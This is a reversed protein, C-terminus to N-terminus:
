SQGGPTAPQDGVACLDLAAALLGVDDYLLRTAAKGSGIGKGPEALAAAIIGRPTEAGRVHDRHFAYHEIDRSYGEVRPACNRACRRLDEAAAAVISSPKLQMLRTGHQALMERDTM